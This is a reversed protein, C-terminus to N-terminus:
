NILFRLSAMLHCYFRVSYKVCIYDGNCLDGWIFRDQYGLILGDNNGYKTGNLYNAAHIVSVIM